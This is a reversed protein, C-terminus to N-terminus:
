PELPRILRRLQAALAGREPDQLIALIAREQALLDTLAADVKDRGEDTLRVRM